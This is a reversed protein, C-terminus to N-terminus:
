VKGERFRDVETQVFGTSLSAVGFRESLSAVLPYVTGALDDEIRQASVIAEILAEDSKAPRLAHLMNAPSGGLHRPVRGSLGSYLARFRVTIEAGADQKMARAVRAAHLLGEALRWIHVSTDLITGPPVTEVSDEAYGRILFFRGAPTARWFDSHAPDTFRRDIEDDGLKVWCELAAMLKM